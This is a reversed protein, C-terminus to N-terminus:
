FINRLGRTLAIKRFFRSASALHVWMLSNTFSIRSSSRKYDHIVCANSQFGIKWGQVHARYCWDIDEYYLFYAEDLPGIATYATRRIMMCGGLIWDVQRVTSFSGTAVDRNDDAKRWFCLREVVNNTLFVRGLFTTVTPFRRCSTQTRGNPYVMRCGVAAYRESQRLTDTLASVAEATVLVDPNLVLVYESSTSAIGLNVAAAFGKNTSNRILRAGPYQTVVACTNDVSANDVVIVEALLGPDNPILASLCAGIDLASNYTIIVASARLSAM